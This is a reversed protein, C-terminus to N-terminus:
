IVGDVFIEKLVLNADHPGFEVCGFASVRMYLVDCAVRLIDDLMVAEVQNLGVEPLKQRAHDTFNMLVEKFDRQTKSLLLHVLLRLCGIEPRLIGGEDLDVHAQEQKWMVGLIFVVDPDVTENFFAFGGM